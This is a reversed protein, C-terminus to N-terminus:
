AKAPFCNQPVVHSLTWCALLFKDWWFPIPPVSFVENLEAPDKFIFNVSAGWTPKGWKGAGFFPSWCGRCVLNAVPHLVQLLHIIVTSMQRHRKETQIIMTSMQRHRKETMCRPIHYWQVTLSFGTPILRQSLAAYLIQYCSFLSIFFTPGNSYIFCMRNCWWFNDSHLFIQWVLYTNKIPLWLLFAVHSKQLEKHLVARVLIPYCTKVSAMGFPIEWPEAWFFVLGVVRCSNRLINASPRPKPNAKTGECISENIAVGM